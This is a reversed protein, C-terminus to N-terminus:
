AVSEPRWDPLTLGTSGGTVPLGMRDAALEYAYANRWLVDAWDFSPPHATNHLRISDLLPTETGLRFLATALEDDNRALLGDQGHRVFDGVGTGARAVVALGAARAELAAIGFSEPTAPAVFVDAAAYLEKIDHHDLAGPVSVWSEMGHRAVARLVTARLPGDGVLVLEFSRKVIEWDPGRHGESSM